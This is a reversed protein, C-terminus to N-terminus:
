RRELEKKRDGEDEGEGGTRRCGDVREMWGRQGDAMGTETEKGRFALTQDGTGVRRKRESFGKSPGTCVWLDQAVAELVVDDGDSVEENRLEADTSFDEALDDDGKRLYRRSTTLDEVRAEQARTSHTISRTECERTRRVERTPRDCIKPKLTSRFSLATTLYRCCCRIKFAANRTSPEPKLIWVLAGTKSRSPM